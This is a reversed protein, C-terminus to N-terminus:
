FFFSMLTVIVEVQGEFHFFILDSAAHMNIIM